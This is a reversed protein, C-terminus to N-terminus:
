QARMAPALGSRFFQWAVALWEFGRPGRWRIPIRKVPYSQRQDYEHSGEVAGAVITVKGPPYCAFRAEFMNCSGGIAPPYKEPLFLTKGLDNASAIPSDPPQTM